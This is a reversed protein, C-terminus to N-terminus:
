MLFCDKEWGFYDKDLKFLMGDEFDWPIEIVGESLGKKVYFCLGGSDRKGARKRKRHKYFPKCYGQIVPVNLDNTWSESFFLLDYDNICEIFDTM